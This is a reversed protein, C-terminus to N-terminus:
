QDVTFTVRHILQLIRGRSGDETVPSCCAVFEINLPFRLNLNVVMGRHKLLRFLKVGTNIKAVSKSETESKTKQHFIKTIQSKNTKTMWLWLASVWRREERETTTQKNRSDGGSETQKEDEGDREM